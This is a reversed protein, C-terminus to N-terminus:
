RKLAKKSASGADDMASYAAPGPGIDNKKEWEKSYLRTHMLTRPDRGFTDSRGFMKHSSLPRTNSEKGPM